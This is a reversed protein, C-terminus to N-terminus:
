GRQVASSVAPWEVEGSPAICGETLCDHAVADEYGKRMLMEIGPRDFRLIGLPGGLNDHPHYRHITVQRYKEFRAMAEEPSTREMHGLVRGVMAALARGEDSSSLGAARLLAVGRNIRAATEIDTTLDQANQVNWIREMTGLTNNLVQDPVKSLDPDMYIVHLTNAGARIAPSLPTNMLVGGDVYTQSGIEVPPFVGPIAASASLYLPADPRLMDENSFIEVTGTTWNTVAIRLTRPSAPINQFPITKPILEALNAVIFASLDILSALRDELRGASSAFSTLREAFANTLFAVDDGFDALMQGPNGFFCIPNLNTFPDLRYRLVGNSCGFADGALRTRWIEALGQVAQAIDFQTQSALFVANYAGASTGTLVLPDVPTFGSAPSKGSALAQMVGVEYAAYAGGGALVFAQTEHATESRLDGNGGVESM